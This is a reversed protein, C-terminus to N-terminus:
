WHDNGGLLVYSKVNQQKLVKLATLSRQENSCCVIVQQKDFHLQLYDIVEFHKIKKLPINYSFDIRENMFEIPDRVDILIFQRQKYKLISKLELPSIYLSRIKNNANEHKYNIKNNLINLTRIRIKKFSMNLANYVLLYGNLINGVGTVIKIIEVGQLLGIIGPLFGLVGQENCKILSTNSREPYIDYYNPGSKYNFVSVQGEYGQVAGYVHIKHLKNCSKSIIYRVKLNDTSDLVIDYNLIISLANDLNLQMNYTNIDCFPNLSELKNKATQVKYEQLNNYTYLVQRQLNSIEIIDNDVIGISGIGAGALYLLSSSALGGAGVCLIKANKIRIQGEVGINNLLIHRAYIKYEKESLYDINLLQNLM